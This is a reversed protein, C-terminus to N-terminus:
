VPFEPVQFTVLIPPTGHPVLRRFSFLDLVCHDIIAGHTGKLSQSQM